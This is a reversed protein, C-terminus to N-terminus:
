LFNTQTGLQLLPARRPMTTMKSFLKYFFIAGLWAFNDRNGMAIQWDNETRTASYFLSLSVQLVKSSTCPSICIM